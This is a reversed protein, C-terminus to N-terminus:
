KKELQRRWKAGVRVVIGRDISGVRNLALHVLQRTEFSVPSAFFISINGEIDGIRSRRCRLDLQSTCILGISVLREITKIALNYIRSRKMLIAEDNTESFPMSIFLHPVEKKEENLDRLQPPTDIIAFRQSPTSKVKQLLSNEGFLLWIYSVSSSDVNGREHEFIQSVFGDRLKQVEDTTFDGAEAVLQSPHIFKHNPNTRDRFIRVGLVGYSTTM